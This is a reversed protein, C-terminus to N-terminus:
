PKQIITATIAFNSAVFWFEGPTPGFSVQPTPGFSVQGGKDLDVRIDGHISVFM